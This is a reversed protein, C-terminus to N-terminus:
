ARRREREFAEKVREIAPHDENKNKLWIKSRGSQYPMDIHKSVIGEYGLKCAHKFITPGDGTLHEVYEIGGARRILKLLLWGAAIGGVGAIFERRRV